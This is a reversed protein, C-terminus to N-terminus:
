PSDTTRDNKDSQQPIINFRVTPANHLLLHGDDGDDNRNTGNPSCTLNSKGRSHTFHERYSSGNTRDTPRLRDDGRFLDISVSLHGTYCGCWLLTILLTTSTFLPSVFKAPSRVTRNSFPDAWLKSILSRIRCASINDTHCLQRSTSM